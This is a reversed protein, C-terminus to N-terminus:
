KSLRLRYATERVMLPSLGIMPFKMLLSIFTVYKAQEDQMKQPAASVIDVDIKFDYGDDLIESSVWQYAPNEGAEALISEGPDQTLKAWMGTEFRDRMLLLAERGARVMFRQMFADEASDRIDSKM